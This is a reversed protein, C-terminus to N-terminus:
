PEMAIATAQVSGALLPSMFGAGILWFAVLGNFLPTLYICKVVPKYIELHRPSQFQM